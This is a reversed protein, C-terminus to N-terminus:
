ARDIVDLQGIYKQGFKGINSDKGDSLVLVVRRGMADGFSGIAQDVGRWLPTPANPPIEKPLAAVLAAPDRSFEPSIEIETGFSGVRVQDDPRLHRFLEECATRLIPLNGSMSGSVDLMVILRIPQPSNDFLTLTQPKGNDQIQFADRDLDPV